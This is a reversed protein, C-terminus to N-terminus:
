YEIICGETTFIKMCLNIVMQAFVLGRIVGLQDCLFIVCLEVAFTITINIRSVRSQM